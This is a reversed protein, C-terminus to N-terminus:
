REGLLSFQAKYKAPSVGMIKTFNRYFTSFDKFGVKEAIETVPLQGISLLKVAESIRKEAIYQKVTKGTYEQFTKYFVSRSLASKKALEDISIPEDYSRNIFQICNFIASVNGQSVLKGPMLKAIYEERLAMLLASITLFHGTQYLSSDDYNQENILLNLCYKLHQQTSEPLTIIDSLNSFDRKMRPFYSFLMDAMNQSFSLCFYTTDEDYIFLSHNCKIPTFFIQGPFQLVERQNQQQLIKGNLMFMMQYFEHNHLQVQGAFDKGIYVHYDIKAKFLLHRNWCNM